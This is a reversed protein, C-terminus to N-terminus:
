SFSGQVLLADDDPDLSCPRSSVTGRFGQGGPLVELGMDGPQQGGLSPPFEKKSYGQNRPWSPPSRLPIINRHAELFHAASSFLSGM